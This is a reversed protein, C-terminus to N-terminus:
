VRGAVVSQWLFQAYLHEMSEPVPTLNLVYATAKQFHDAEVETPTSIADPNWVGDSTAEGAGREFEGFAEGSVGRERLSEIFRRSASEAEGASAGPDLALGLLKLERATFFLKERETEAGTPVMERM